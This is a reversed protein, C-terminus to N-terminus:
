VLRYDMLEGSLLYRRAGCRPIEDRGDDGILPHSGQRPPRRAPRILVRAAVAGDTRGIQWRDVFNLVAEFFDVDNVTVGAHGTAVCTSATLADLRLGRQSAPIDLVGVRVHLMTRAVAAELKRGGAGSSGCSTRAHASLSGLHLSPDIREAIAASADGFNM